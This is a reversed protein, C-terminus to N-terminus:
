LYGRARYALLGIWEKMAATTTGLADADPLWRLVNDPGGAAAVDTTAPVVPLGAHRFVALARPMHAASTVLLASAFPTKERLAVIELANEYTNRSAGAIAIDTAPVGWEILLDRISLAESQEAPDWPLNGGTVLIRKVKGARYLRAAHLVRDAADALEPAIRPPVAPSIAGGLVIAVDAQPTAAITHEPYQRELSALVRDAVIPMSCVWLVGLALILMIAGLRSRGALLLAGGALALLLTLGVPYLFIPLLKTLLLAAESEFM